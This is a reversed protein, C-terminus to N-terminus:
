TPPSRSAEFIATHRGNRGWAVIQELIPMLTRGLATLSYEVRPPVGPFATREILGRAALDKLERSLIRPTVAKSQCAIVLSRKLGGYRTVGGALVWLIRLKYKGGAIEDFAILPCRSKEPINPEVM